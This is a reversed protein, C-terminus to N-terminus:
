IVTTPRRKIYFNKIAFSHQVSNTGINENNQGFRVYTVVPTTNVAKTGALANIMTTSGLKAKLNSGNNVNTTHMQIVWSKTVLPGSDESAAEIDVGDWLASNPYLDYVKDNAGVDSFGGFAGPRWAPGHRNTADQRSYWPYVWNPKNISGSYYFLTADFGNEWQGAPFPSPMYANDTLTTITSASGTDGHYATPMFVTEFQLAGFYAGSGTVGLYNPSGAVAALGFITQMAGAGVGASGCLFLRWLDGVQYMYAEVEAGGSINSVTGTTLNFYAVNVTGAKNIFGIRVIDREAAKVYCSVTCRTNDVPLTARYDQGVRHSNTTNDEEMKRLSAAGFVTSSIMASGTTVSSKAWEAAGIDRSSYVGNETGREIMLGKLTDATIAPGAAFTVLGSLVTNGNTTDWYRVGDVNAGNWPSSIVGISVYDDPAGTPRGHTYQIMAGDVYVTTAGSNPNTIVFRHNTLDPITGAVSYTQMSSPSTYLPPVVDIQAILTSGASEEIRLRVTDTGNGTALAVSLTHQGPRYATSNRTVVFANASTRVIQKISERGTRPSVGTVAVPANVSAGVTWGTTFDESNLCLNETRRAGYFRAEGSKAVHYAGVYDTVGNTSSRAFTIQTPLSALLALNSVYTGGAEGSLGLGLRNQM